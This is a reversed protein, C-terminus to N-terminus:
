LFPIEHSLVGQMVLEEVGMECPRKSSYLRCQINRPDKHFCKRYEPVFQSGLVMDSQQSNVM